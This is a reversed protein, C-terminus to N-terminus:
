PTSDYGRTDTLTTGAVGTVLVLEQSATGYDLALVFDVAPFGSTSSVPITTDSATVGSALTTQAAVNSYRRTM